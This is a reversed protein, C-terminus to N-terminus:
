GKLIPQFNGPLSEYLYQISIETVSRAWPVAADVSLNAQQKM